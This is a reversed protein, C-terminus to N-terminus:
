ESNGWEVSPSDGWLSDLDYYARREAEFLHVIVDVYDVVIWAGERYGSTSYPRQGQEKAAEKIHDVAARMQRDSTGNGIVFFDCIPSVGRLDLVVIEDCRDAEMMRACDIAFRRAEEQSRDPKAQMRQSVESADSVASPDVGLQEAHRLLDEKGPM